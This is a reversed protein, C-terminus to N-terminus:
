KNTKYIKDMLDIALELEKVTMDKSSHKGFQKELFNVYSENKWIGAKKLDTAVIHIRQILKKKDKELQDGATPGQREGIDYPTLEPERGPSIPNRDESPESSEEKAVAGIDEIDQTFLGSANGLILSAAVIARKCAMKLLTNVLTAIDERKVKYETYKGYKGKRERTDLVKKNGLKSKSVWIYRYKEEYSNCSGIGEGFIRGTGIHKLVCKVQYNFLGKEWNETKEVEFEPRVLYRSCIKEAGPLMLFPKPIGPIKGYDVGEVLQSNVFNQFDAWKRSFEEVTMETTPREVIEGKKIEKVNNSM